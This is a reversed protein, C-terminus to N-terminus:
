GIGIVVRDHLIIGIDVLGLYDTGARKRQTRRGKAKLRRLSVSNRWSVLLRVGSLLL